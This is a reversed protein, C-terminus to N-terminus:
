IRHSLTLSCLGNVHESARMIWQYFEEQTLDSKAVNCTKCAPVVNDLLYGKRSDVRDLGNINVYTAWKRHGKSPTPPAGCYYCPQSSIDIFQDLTLDFGLEKAKKRSAVVM